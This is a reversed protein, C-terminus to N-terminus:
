ARVVNRPALHSGEPWLVQSPQLCFKQGLSPEYVVATGQGQAVRGVHDSTILRVWRHGM